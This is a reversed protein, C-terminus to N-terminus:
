GRTRPVPDKRFVTGTGFSSHDLSWLGTSQWATNQFGAAFVTGVQEYGNQLLFHSLRGYSKVGLVFFGPEPTRLVDVGQAPQEMCNDGASLLQAALSMPAGTAYCEHVQLQRYLRADPVYGTLSLVQDVHVEREATAGLRVVIQDNERRFEHVTAGLEVRMGPVSGAAIQRSFLVLAQRGPVSDDPIEGWDPQVSRVAWIVQTGPASQLMGALDRAATQASKGAGVLLTTRGAWDHADRNLDPMFRQILGDLLAEGPAPIGGDGTANPTGYNGTCDLVVTAYEVAQEDNPRQLLIRFPRAARAQTGIEEHKLLGERGVSVVRTGLVLNSAIEPLRALPELLTTVLEEGTPCSDDDPVKSGADALHRAMRESVNMTWPTFLRVHGWRRVYGAEQPASEIITFALGADAAALAADLGIPGAGLIAIRVQQSQM